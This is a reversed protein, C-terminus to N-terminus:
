LGEEPPSVINKLKKPDHLIFSPPKKHYPVMMILRTVM